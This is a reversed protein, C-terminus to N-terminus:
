GENRTKEQSATIGFTDM